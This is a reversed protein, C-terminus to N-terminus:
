SYHHELYGYIVNGKMITMQMLLDTTGIIERVSLDSLRALIHAAYRLATLGSWVETM